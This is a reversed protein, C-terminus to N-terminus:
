KQSLKYANLIQRKILNKNTNSTDALARRYEASWKAILQNDHYDIVQGGYVGGAEIRPQTQDPIYQAIWTAGPSAVSIQSLAGGSSPQEFAAPPKPRPGVVSRQYMAAQSLLDGIDM